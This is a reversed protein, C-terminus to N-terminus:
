QSGDPHSVGFVALIMLAIRARRNKEFVALLVVAVLVSAGGIPITVSPM